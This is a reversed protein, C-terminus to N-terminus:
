EPNEKIPSKYQKKRKEIYLRLIKVTIHQPTNRKQGQKTNQTSKTDAQTHREKIQPLNGETNKQSIKDTDNIHSEKGENIGTILLHPGKITDWM